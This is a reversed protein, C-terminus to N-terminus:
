EEDENEVALQEIQLEVRVKNGGDTAENSICTVRALAKLHITDGISCDAELGLKQLEHETLSIRLGWPYDPQDKISAPLLADLKEEDTLEMPVMQSWGGAM